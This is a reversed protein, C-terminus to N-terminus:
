DKTFEVFSMFVATWYVRLGIRSFSLDDAGSSDFCLSSGSSTILGFGTPPDNPLAAASFFSATLFLSGDPLLLGTVALAGAGELLFTTSSSSTTM